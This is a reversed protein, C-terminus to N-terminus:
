EKGTTRKSDEILKARLQEVTYGQDLFELVRKRNEEMAKERTNWRICKVYSHYPPISVPMFRSITGSNFASSLVRISFM